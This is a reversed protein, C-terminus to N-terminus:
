RQMVEAGRDFSPGIMPRVRFWLRYLAISTAMGWVMGALMALVSRATSPAGIGEFVLAGVSMGVTMWASCVINQALRACYKRRCGPRVARLAPIAALGGVWMGVHTWPLLAWHLQMMSWLGRQAPGCIGALGGPALVRSDLLLGIVMGFAGLALMAQPAPLMFAAARRDVAPPVFSTTM